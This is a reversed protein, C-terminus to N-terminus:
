RYLFQLTQGESAAGANLYIKLTLNKTTGESIDFEDINFLFDIYNDDITTVAVNLNNTGDNLM